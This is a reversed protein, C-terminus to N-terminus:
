VEALPIGLARAAANLDEDYSGLELSNDQRYLYEATALHLGDLTRVPVPYSTLARALVARTMELMDILALLNRASSGHTDTLRYAHLRNWVEYELLRSSVLQQRWVQEPPSRAESLLRALAISSDVYIL